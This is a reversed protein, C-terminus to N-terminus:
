MRFDYQIGTQQFLAVIRDSNKQRAVDLPLRGKKDKVDTRAGLKLLMEVCDAHQQDCAHHLASRGSKDVKELEGGNDVLFKINNPKNGFVANM